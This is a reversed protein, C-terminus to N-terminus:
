YWSWYDEEHSYGSDTHVLPCNAVAHSTDEQTILTLHLKISLSPTNEANVLAAYGSECKKKAKLDQWWDPYGHLKFYTDKTHKINGCHACGEEGIQAKSRMSTDPRGSTSMRLSTQQPKRGGKSLMVVSSATDEKTLM